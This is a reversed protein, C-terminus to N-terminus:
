ARRGDPLDATPWGGDAIHCRANLAFALPSSAMVEASRAMMCHGDSWTRHSRQPVSDRWCLAAAVPLFLFRMAIVDLLMERVKQEESRSIQHTALM